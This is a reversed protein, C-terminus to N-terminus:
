ERMCEVSLNDRMRQLIELLKAEEKGNVGQLTQQNVKEGLKRLQKLMPTAKPTLFLRKARRDEPDERREVWGEQELRDIHRGLTIPKIDMKKALTTQKVGDSWKLHALVSWQARTLGLDHAQNDFNWRMRRAVDHLLFGVSDELRDEM